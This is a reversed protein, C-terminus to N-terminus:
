RNKIANDKRGVFHKSIESWKTGLESVCAVILADEDVTWGGKKVESSSENKWRERCPAIAASSERGGKSWSPLIRGTGRALSPWPWEVPLQEDM